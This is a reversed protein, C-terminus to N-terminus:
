FSSNTSNSLRARGVRIKTAELLGRNVGAHNPQRAICWRFHQEAAQSNGQEMLAIGLVYRVHFDNSDIRLGEELSVIAAEHHGLERQMSALMRWLRCARSAPVDVVERETVAQAYRAITELQEHDGITRYRAWIHQLTRWDPQFEKLFVSSPIKGAFLNVIQFQHNGSDEFTRRWLQLAKDLRGSLFEHLGAAFLVDGDYPNVRLAQAVYADVTQSGKGELFCLNALYLYAEGQLPCNRLACHAHHFALYLLDSDHGFARVLWERLETSSSFQSAMAADRIQTISMQNQSQAQRLEFQRLYNGALRLHARAHTPHMRIVHRLEAIMSDTVMQAAQQGETTDQEVQKLRSANISKSAINALLYNDWHLSAAAPGVLTSVSWLGALCSIVAFGIWSPRSLRLEYTKREEVPSCLQALRLACCALLITIAVCAPIFWVFDVSSHVLSAVLAATVAGACLREAPRKSQKLARVCWMSCCVIGWALLLAGPVGNETLIQLYGNEAHTYERTQSEPLYAPYIYRHSGVGAGSQWGARFAAVNAAWIKRRGGQSDLEEVSGSTFDDLRRAVQDYGYVSLVTLVIVALAAASFILNSTSILRYRLYIAALVIAMCALALAGGRSFSLMVASVVAIIGFILAVTPMSTSHLPRSDPLHKSRSQDKSRTNVSVRQLTWAVLPALGLVLFHAFHNRCSFSGKVTGYTNSFPYEYIWFFRGNSTFYQVLGFCAMMVASMAIWRLLRAIDNVNQLRQTVTFFLLGYAM